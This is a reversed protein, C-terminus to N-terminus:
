QSIVPLNSNVRPQSVSSLNRTRGFYLLPKEFAEISASQSPSKTALHSTM